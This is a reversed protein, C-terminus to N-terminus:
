GGVWGLLTIQGRLDATLRVAGFGNSNTVYVDVRGDVSTTVGTFAIQTGDPSYLPNCMSPPPNGRAVFNFNADIVRSGFPCQGRVGGIAVQSNDPSWSAAMGFRAFSLEDSRGIVNGQADMLVVENTAGASQFIVRSGDPSWTEALHISSAPSGQLRVEQASATVIDALWLSRENGGLALDGTAFAVLRNNIWRPPETVLQDSLRTVELTDVDIIYLSGGVPPPMTLADCAGPDGPIWSPCKDRDSVFVIYRGDPSWSPWLDYAGSNTLNRARAGDRGITFIDMAYGTALAIAIQDGDASWAPPSYFGRQFLSNVPLLRANIGNSIDLVYLGTTIGGPQGQFYAVANGAPAIFVQDETTSDTQLIPTRVGPSSPSAFYLTQVNTGPQPTLVNGQSDRDNQNLFAILPSTIGGRINAPLDVLSWNDYSFSVTALPTISATPTITPTATATPTPTDTPTVTATPTPTTTPTITPTATATPTPTATATATPTETPSAFAQCAALLLSATFLVSRHILM